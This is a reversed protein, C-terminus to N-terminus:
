FAGLGLIDDVNRTTHELANKSVYSMESNTRSELDQKNGKWMSPKKAQAVTVNLAAMVNLLPRFPVTESESHDSGSSKLSSVTRQFEDFRQSQTLFDKSDNRFHDDEILLKSVYRQCLIRSVGPSSWKELFHIAKPQDFSCILRSILHSYSEDDGVDHLLRNMFETELSFIKNIVYQIFLREELCRFGMFVFFTHFGTPIPFHIQNVAMHYREFLMLLARERSTGRTNLSHDYPHTDDSYNLGSWFLDLLKSSQKKQCAIYEMAMKQIKMKPVESPLYRHFFRTLSDLVKMSRGEEKEVTADDCRIYELYEPKYEKSFESNGQIQNEVLQFRRFKQFISSFGSEATSSSDNTRPIEEQMSIKKLSFRDVSSAFSLNQRLFIWFELEKRKEDKFTQNLIKSSKMPTYSIQAIKEGKRNTELHGRFPETNSFPLLKYVSAEVQFKMQFYTSGILYENLIDVCEPNAPDCALHGFIQLMIDPDQIHLISFHLLALRTTDCHTSLFCDTWYNNKINLKFLKCLRPEFLQLEEQQIAKRPKSNFCRFESLQEDSISLEESDPGSLFLHHCPPHEANCDLIHFVYGPLIVAICDNLMVFLLRAQDILNSPVVNPVKCRLIAGHHLMFISYELVSQQPEFEGGGDTVDTSSATDQIPRTDENLPHQYCLFFSGDPSSVVQMNVDSESVFKSLPKRDYQLRTNSPSGVSFPCILKMTVVRPSTECFQIASFILDASEDDSESYVYYLRKRHREFQAWVFRKVLNEVQPQSSMIMGCDIRALPIHYLDISKTHHFFLMHSERRASGGYLPYKGHLFQVKQYHPQDVALKFVRNKPSIEAIISKYTGVSEEAPNFDHPKLEIVTFALLTREENVSATVVDVKRDHDFLISSKKTTLDYLCFYTIEMESKTKDPKGDWTFLLLDDSVQGVIHANCSEKIADVDQVDRKRFTKKVREVIWPFIDDDFDFVKELNM